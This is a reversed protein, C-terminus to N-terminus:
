QILSNVRFWEECRQPWDSAPGQGARLGFGHEAIQYIHLEAPINHARLAQYFLISNEVPVGTDSSGHVLFTPPTTDSVHLENSYLQALEIPESEGLLARRSGVHAYPDMFTIVPYILVMFDPRASFEEKAGQNYEPRNFHVGVSSALHGGASFGLVGIKEPDIKWQQANKRVLQVARLGDMLPAPHGFEKLRNKVIFAAIGLENLWVAVEEGEKVISLREYGGGPFIIVATGNMKSEGPLRPLLAPNRVNYVREDLYREEGEIKAEGPMVKNWLPVSEAAFSMDAYFMGIVAAM